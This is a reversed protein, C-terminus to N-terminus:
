RGTGSGSLEYLNMDVKQGSVVMMVMVDERLFKVINTIPKGYFDTEYVFEGTAEDYAYENMTEFFTYARRTEEGPVFVLSGDDTRELRFDDPREKWDDIGTWDTDWFARPDTDGIAVFAELEELRDVSDIDLEYLARKFEEVPATQWESETQADLAEDAESPLRREMAPGSSAAEYGAIPPASSVPPPSGSREPGMGGGGFLLTLGFGVLLGSGGVM